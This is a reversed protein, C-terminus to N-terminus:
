FPLYGNSGDLVDDIFTLVSDNGACLVRDSVGWIKWVEYPGGTCGLHPYAALAGQMHGPLDIEPIVTM